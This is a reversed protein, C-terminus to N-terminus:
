LVHNAALLFKIFWDDNMLAKNMLAKNMLAKNM